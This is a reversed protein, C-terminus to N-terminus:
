LCLESPGKAEKCRTRETEKGGARGGPQHGHGHGHAPRVGPKERWFFGTGPSFAPAPSCCPRPASGCPYSWSSSSGTVTDGSGAPTCMGCSGTVEHLLFASSFQEAGPCPGDCLQSGDGWPEARGDARGRAGVLSCLCEGSGHPSRSVGPPKGMVPHTRRLRAPLQAAASPPVRCWGALRVGQQARPRPARPGQGRAM